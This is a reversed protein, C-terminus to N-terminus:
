LKGGYMFRQPLAIRELMEMWKFNGIIKANRISNLCYKIYKDIQSLFYFLNDHYQENSMSKKLIEGYRPNKLHFYGGFSKGWANKQGLQNAEDFVIIGKEHLYHLDSADVNDVDHGAQVMYVIPLSTDQIVILRYIIRVDDEGEIAENLISCLEKDESLM